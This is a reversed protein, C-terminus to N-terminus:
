RDSFGMGTKRGPDYLTLRTLGRLSRQRESKLVAFATGATGQCLVKSVGM